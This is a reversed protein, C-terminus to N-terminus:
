FMLQFNHFACFSNLVKVGGWFTEPLEKIIIVYRTKVSFCGQSKLFSCSDYM